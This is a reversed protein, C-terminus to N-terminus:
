IKQNTVHSGVGSLSVSCESIITEVIVHAELSESDLIEDVFISQSIEQAKRIDKEIPTQLDGPCLPRGQCLDAIKSVM